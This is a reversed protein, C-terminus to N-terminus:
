RPSRGPSPARHHPPAARCRRAREHMRATPTNPWVADAADRSEWESVVFLHGPRRPRRDPRAPTAPTTRCRRGSQTPRGEGREVHDPRLAVGLDLVCAHREGEVGSLTRAPASREARRCAPASQSPDGAPHAREVSRGPGIGRPRARTKSTSSPNRADDGGLVALHACDGASRDPGGSPAGNTGQPRRPALRAGELVGQRGRRSPRPRSCRSSRSRASSASRPRSIPISSSASTSGRAWSRSSASSPGGEDEVIKHIRDFYEPTKELHERAIPAIRFLGSMPSCATSGSPGDSLAGDLLLARGVADLPMRSNVPYPSSVVYM